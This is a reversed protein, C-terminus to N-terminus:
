LDSIDETSVALCAYDKITRNEGIGEAKQPVTDSVLHESCEKQTPYPGSVFQPINFDKGAYGHTANLTYFVLLYILNM